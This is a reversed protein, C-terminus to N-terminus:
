AAGFSTDIEMMQPVSGKLMGLNRIGSDSDHPAQQSGQRQQQQQRATPGLLGLALRRGNLDL